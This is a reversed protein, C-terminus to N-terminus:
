KEASVYVTVNATNGTISSNSLISVNIIPINWSNDFSMFYTSSTNVITTNVLTSTHNSEYWYVPFYNSGDFSGNVTVTINGTGTANAKLLTVGICPHIFDQINIQGSTSNSANTLQTNILKVSVPNAYSVGCLLFLMVVMVLLKKFM